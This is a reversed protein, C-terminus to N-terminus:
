ARYPAQAECRKGARNCELWAYRYRSPRNRWTGRTARLTRGQVAKGTIKPHARPAPAGRKAAHAAAGTAALAFLVALLVSTRRPTM